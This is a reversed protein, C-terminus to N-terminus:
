AQIIPDLVSYATEAVENIHPEANIKILKDEYLKIAPITENEFAELRTKIAEPNDDTRTILKGGCLECEDKKYDAPYVNKCKECIRRTTLRLLATEKKIELLVAKYTRYYKELVANLSEAQDVKRPIGDFLINKGAPLNAMFNEVIEMVVENPVLHGAEIISKVKQALPTSQSSLKRLEGGTEFLELNYREALQKGLTGKGAGQMGFLILDM